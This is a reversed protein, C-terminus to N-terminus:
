LDLIHFHYFYQLCTVHCTTINSKLSKCSKRLSCMLVNLLIEIYVCVCVLMAYIEYMFKCTYLLSFNWSAITFVVLNMWNTYIYTFWFFTHSTLLTGIYHTDMSSICHLTLNYITYFSSQFCKIPIFSTYWSSFQLEGETDYDILRGIIKYDLM